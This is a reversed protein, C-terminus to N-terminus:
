ISQIANNVGLIRLKDTLREVIDSGRIYFTDGEFFGCVRGRHYVTIFDAADDAVFFEFGIRGRKGNFELPEVNRYREKYDKLEWDHLRPARKYSRHSTNGIWRGDKTYMSPLFQVDLSCVTVAGVDSLYADYDDPDCVEDDDDVDFNNHYGCCVCPTGNYIVITDSYYMAFDHNNCEIPQAM